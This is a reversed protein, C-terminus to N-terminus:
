ALRVAVAAWTGRIDDPAGGGAAHEIGILQRVQAQTVAVDYRNGGALGVGRARLSLGGTRGDGAAPSDRSSANPM